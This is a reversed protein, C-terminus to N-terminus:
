LQSTVLGVRASFNLSYTKLPADMHLLRYIDVSSIFIIWMLLTFSIVARLKSCKSEKLIIIIIIINILQLQTTV